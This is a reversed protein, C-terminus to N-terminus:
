RSVVWLKVSFCRWWPHFTVNQLFVPYDSEYSYELVFVWDASASFSLLLATDHLSTVLCRVLTTLNHRWVDSVCPMSQAKRIVRLLAKSVVFQRGHCWSDSVIFMCNDDWIWYCCCCCMELVTMNLNQVKPMFLKLELDYIESRSDSGIVKINMGHMVSYYIIIICWCICL